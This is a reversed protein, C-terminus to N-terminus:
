SVIRLKPQRRRGNPERDPTSALLFAAGKLSALFPDPKIPKQAAAIVSFEAQPVSVGIRPTQYCHNNDTDVRIQGQPADFACDGLVALVNKASVSSAARLARALMHVSNYSSEADASTVKGHGFRARYSDVFARNQPNDLSQFYVSSTIHGLAAPDGISRLEPESLTCSAIPIAAGGRSQTGLRADHFARLFAYSSEGILTNFVFDPQLRRIEEVLGTVDTSGVALYREALVEGGFNEVIERMVRNSEWPWIYDSGCCYVRTGITSVMYQALPLIHQNPSAGLYVVNDSSEFGEYHSPYWLLADYKEIIPLLEKRSSSTYCGVIHTVGSNLILDRCILGYQATDGGPNRVLPALEFDFDPSRNIEELALLTGNLMAEGVTAYPGTTSFLVGVPIKVM